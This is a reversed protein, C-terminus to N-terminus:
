NLGSVFEYTGSKLEMVAMGDQYKVWTIGPSGSAERGSETIGRADSAPLFLTATTNAPVTARYALRGNELQWSSEIRGYMSEYFGKAYTMKGDPDPVPQLIFHRFGPDNDDRRIGLSYNYMWAGVAGFSYHNFSNMSNNGGFGNEVTYSNLREWITTAGQEVSYLWSPYSTQQLMRYAIEPYGHDCLAKSIWATGIFGTMLSYEPRVVGEDDTNRRMVATTLHRAADAEYEPSFVGLALPVAYSAQTDPHTKRTGADVFRENFLKRRDEYKKRYSGADATKGLIGAIKAMIELDYVFYAEWLLTNDNRNGEPSLWDGLPGENVLGTKADIRSELFSIYKGMSLFHEALMEKDAFQLWSEWAVTIGASGWLIGGFGGRLPVVDGFRGDERQDDRFATMHRRLFQPMNYLYASTRAFMSIDGSWGMRENRQPCDTPISLFNGKMSWTINEWLKNVGPNSTVYGSAPEQASSIVCGRVSEAPLAKGIGTIEIFRYGHFTFRPRIIEDGGKLIFIDQSLAARINELMIMGVKKGYQPLDPYKVEAYRLTIRNGKIGGRVSIEPVGVMNQGM